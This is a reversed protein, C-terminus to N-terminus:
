VSEYANGVPSRLDLVVMFAAYLLLFLCGFQFINLGLALEPYPKLWEWGFRQLGYFGCFLYFGWRLMAVRHVALLWLYVGFFLALAGAEYLAVPHRMVGDGLDVGFLSETPVGYTYDDLGALHCGIRGVAIGLAIGPVLLPGTSGRVNYLVKLLEIAIVGGILAGLVSKALTMEMGALWTNATGLLVSGVAAGISAVVTYFLGYGQPLPSRAVPFAALCVKLAIAAVAYALLDTLLHTQNIM